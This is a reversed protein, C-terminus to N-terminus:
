VGCECQVCVCVDIGGVRCVCVCRDRWCVKPVKWQIKKATAIWNGFSKRFELELRQVLEQEAQRVAAAREEPTLVPEESVSAEGGEEGPIVIGQEAWFDDEEEGDQQDHMIVDAAGKGDDDEITISRNDVRVDGQATAGM